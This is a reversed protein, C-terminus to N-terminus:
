STVLVASMNTAFRNHGLWYYSQHWEGGGDRYLCLFYRGGDSGCLVTGQLEFWTINFTTYLWNLTAQGDEELLAQGVWADLRVHNAAMHRSLKEEGTIHPEGKKLCATFLVKSFDVETLALSRADQDEEGKLGDGDKAGRWITWGSGFFTVPDFSKTRNILLVGLSKMVFNLGNNLFAVLRRNVDDVSYGETGRQIAGGDIGELKLNLIRIAVDKIQDHTATKM